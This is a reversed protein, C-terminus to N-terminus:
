ASRRRNGRRRHRREEQIERPVVRPPLAAPPIKVYRITTPGQLEHSLGQLSELADLKERVVQALWAASVEGLLIYGDWLEAGEQVLRM